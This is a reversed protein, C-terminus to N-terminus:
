KGAAEVRPGPSEFARILGVFAPKDSHIVYAPVPALYNAYRGKDEFRERFGSSAIFKGFRPVVGGGIYLGGLAGLTLALNGAVTGLFACFVELVERCTADSGALGLRTIDPPSLSASAKGDLACIALYLNV